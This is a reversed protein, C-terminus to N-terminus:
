ASAGGDITIVAGSIQRAKASALYAITDAVHQPTALQGNLGIANKLRSADVGEPHALKAVLPTDIGGPCVTNVRVGLVGYEAALSRMLMILGAKSASYVSSYPWGQMGAISSVAVISGRHAILAGILHQTLIFPARLNINLVKDWMEITVDTAHSRLGIGAAHVLVDLRESWALIEQAGRAIQQPDALDCRVALAACGVSRIERVVDHLPAEDIDVCAVAFGQQALTIASARGVGSSAGTICAVESTTGALM